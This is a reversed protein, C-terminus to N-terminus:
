ILERINRKIGLALRLNSYYVSDRIDEWLSSFLVINTFIDICDDNLYSYGMLSSDYIAVTELKIIRM